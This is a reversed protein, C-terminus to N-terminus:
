VHQELNQQQHNCEDQHRLLEAHEQSHQESMHDLSLRVCAFEDSLFQRLPLEESGSLGAEDHTTSTAQLGVLVRWPVGVQLNPAMMLM